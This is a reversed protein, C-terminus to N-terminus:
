PEDAMVDNEAQDAIIEMVQSEGDPFQTTMTRLQASWGEIEIQSVRSAVRREIPKLILQWCDDPTESYDTEFVKLLAVADGNTLALMSAVFAAMEPRQRLSIRRVPGEGTQMEIDKVTLTMRATEPSEIWKTLTGTDPDMELHGTYLVPENFLSSSRYERFPLREGTVAAVAELRNVLAPDAVVEAHGNLSFATLLTITALLITKM